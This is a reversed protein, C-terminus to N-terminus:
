RRVEGDRSILMVLTETSNVYQVYGRTFNVNGDLAQDIKAAVSATVCLVGLYREGAVPSGFASSLQNAYAWQNNISPDGGWEGIPWSEIYPGDWGSSNDNIIFGQSCSGSGNCNCTAPWQGVDAYYSLAATKVSKYDEITKSIKSKEIAKFSAPVIIGALIAIIAIVVILEILTFSFKDM